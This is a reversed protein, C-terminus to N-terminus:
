FWHLTMTKLNIGVINKRKITYFLKCKVMTIQNKAVLQLNFTTQMTYVLIHRLIALIIEEDNPNLSM